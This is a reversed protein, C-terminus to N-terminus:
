PSDQAGVQHIAGLAPEAATAEPNLAVLGIGAAERRLAVSRGAEAPMSQLDFDIAGEIHIFHAVLSQRRAPMM